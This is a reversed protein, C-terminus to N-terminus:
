RLISLLIGHDKEYTSIWLSLISTIIIADGRAAFSAFYSLCIRPDRAALFGEKIIV